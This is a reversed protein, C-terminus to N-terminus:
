IFAWFIPFHGSTSRIMNKKCTATEVQATLASLLTLQADVKNEIQDTKDLLYQDVVFMRWFKCAFLRYYLPLYLSISCTVLCVWKLFTNRHDKYRLRSNIAHMYIYIYHNLRRCLSTLRSITSKNRASPKGWMSLGELLQSESNMTWEDICLESANVLQRRDCSMVYHQILSGYRGLYWRSVWKWLTM